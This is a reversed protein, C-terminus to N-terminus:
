RGPLLRSGRQGGPRRRSVAARSLPLPDLGRLLAPGHGCGAGTWRGTCKRRDFSALHGSSLVTWAVGKSDVDVGRAGFSGEPPQILEAVATRSPDSGPVLRILLSPQDMRSFGPGMSQGWIVDGEPSPAVGYFAARVWKDKGSEVPQDSQVFPARQGSGSVNAIVPTWGHSGAEDGTADFVRTDLRPAKSRIAGPSRRM